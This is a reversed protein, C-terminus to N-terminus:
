PVASLDAATWILVKGNEGAAALRRGDRSFALKLIYAEDKLVILERGIQADWIHVGDRCACAIRAGDPSFAAAIEGPDDTLTLLLRGTVADWVKGASSATVVRRGDFSFAASETDPPLAWILRGDMADFLGAGKSNNSPKSLLLIRKGDPSYAYTTFRTTPVHLTRVVRKARLDWEDVRDPGSSVLFRKGDPTFAPRGSKYLTLVTGGTRADLIQTCHAIDFTTLYRGDPSFDAYEIAPLAPRFSRLLQGTRSNWIRARYSPQRSNSTDPTAISQGDPSFSFTVLLHGPVSLSIPEIERQADWLKITPYSATALTRDDPSFAVCFVPDTHGILRRVEVGTRPDWLRTTHDWSASALLKGDPSFALGYIYLTHGRLARLEQGTAPNWIQIVADGGATALMTGDPSFAVAYVYWTHGQLVHLLQGTAVNWLRTTTDQSGTALTKGDPSFAVSYIIGNHGRLVRRLKGTQVDWIRTTSDMSGTALTKGDPSFAISYIAGAHGTFARILRGTGPDWLRFVRDDGGAALLKGDPSFVTTRIWMKSGRLTRLLRGDRVRWLRLTTDRDASALTSGDPSFAVSEVERYAPSDMPDQITRLDQHCLAWLYGWEFDRLDPQGSAPRMSQLIQLATGVDGTEIKQQAISIRAIYLLRRTYAESSKAKAEAIQAKAEAKRARAADTVALAILVGMVALISGLVSAARVLGRRYAARQRRLESGPMHTLVWERDFVRDYIRNRVALFGNEVKVVGSLRLISCLPNTEDDRVRQGSRVRQYIDLLSALDAESRLLRNRAFALNDDTERAITNLFINECLADVQKPPVVDPVEAIAQCLRQTMYPHGGTWHLVRELVAAGGAIGTALPRAEERSFDRMEIRTGINFPSMRTDSILDGPTAVGLLCFTLRSLTPDDARRNYCERIGAFFEDPSFPLSRVADIEDVFVVLSGAGSGASQVPARKALAPLAVQRITELWRLMAGLRSHAQWFSEMETTLRLQEALLTLLGDYWEEPTVNQGIATLDLLVVTFGEQRLRAATHVMLSSKGMQRTNLVYCFEGRKLSEILDTDAQRTVYSPAAAPLTGGTIYFLDSDPPM